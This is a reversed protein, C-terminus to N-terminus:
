GGILGRLQDLLPTPTKKVSVPQTTKAQPKQQYISPVSELIAKTSGLHKTWVRLSERIDTATFGGKPPEAGRLRWRLWDEQFKVPANLFISQADSKHVGVYEAIDMGAQKRLKAIEKADLGGTSTKSTTGTAKKSSTTKAAAKAARAVEQEELSVLKEMYEFVERARKEAYVERQEIERGAANVQAEYPRLGSNIASERVGAHEIQYKSSDSAYVNALRKDMNALEGVKALKDQIAKQLYPDDKKVREELEIQTPRYGTMQNTKLVDELNKVTIGTAM